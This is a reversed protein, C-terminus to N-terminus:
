LCLEAYSLIGKKELGELYSILEDFKGYKDVSIALMSYGSFEGYECYHKMAKIAQYVEEEKSRDIFIISISKNGSEEIVRNFEFLDKNIPNGICIKDGLAISEVFFPTNEIIATRDKLIKIHMLESSVPPFGEDVDLDFKVRKM